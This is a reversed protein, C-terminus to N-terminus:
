TINATLGVSDLTMQSLLRQSFKCPIAQVAYRSTSLVVGSGPGCSPFPPIQATADIVSQKRVISEIYGAVDLRPWMSKGRSPSWGHATLWFVGKKITLTNWSLLLFIVQGRWLTCIHRSAIM